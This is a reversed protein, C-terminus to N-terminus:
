EGRQILVGGSLPTIIPSVTLLLNAAERMDREDQGNRRGQALVRSKGKAQQQMQQQSQQSALGLSKRGLQSVAPAPLGFSGSRLRASGLALHPLPRTGGGNLSAGGAGPTLGTGGNLSGLSPSFSHNGTGGFNSGVSMTRSRQGVGNAGVSAAGLVTGAAGLAPSPMGLGPQWGLPGLGPSPGPGMRPSYGNLYAACGNWTKLGNLHPSQSISNSRQQKVKVGGGSM